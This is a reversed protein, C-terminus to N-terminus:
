EKAAHKAERQDCARWGRMLRTFSAQVRIRQGVALPVFPPGLRHPLILDRHDDLFRGQAAARESEFREVNSAAQEYKSMRAM